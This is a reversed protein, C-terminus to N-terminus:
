HQWREIAKDGLRKSFELMAQHLLTNISMLQLNRNKLEKLGSGMLSLLKDDSKKIGKIVSNDQRFGKQIEKLLAETRSSFEQVEQQYREKEQRSTSIDEMMQRTSLQLRSNEKKIQGLMLTLGYMNVEVERLVSSQRNLMDSHSKHLEELEAKMEDRPALLKRTREAMDRISQELESKRRTLADKQERIEDIRLKEVRWKREVEKLTKMLEELEREKEEISRSIEQMEAIIQDVEQQRLSQTERNEKELLAMQHLMLDFDESDPYQELLAAREQLLAEYRERNSHIGSAMKEEYNQQRRKKTELIRDLRKIKEELQKIKFNVEKLDALLEKKRSEAIRRNIQEDELLEQIIKEMEMIDKNHKVISAIREELQLRSRELETSVWEHDARVEDEVGLQHKCLKSYYALSEKLLVQAALAKELGDEVGITEEQLSKLTLNFAEEQMETHKKQKEIQQNLEKNQLMEEQLQQECSFHSMKLSQLNDQVETTQRFLQKIKSEMENKNEKLEKLELGIKEVVERQQKVQGMRYAMKKDLDENEESFRERELAVSQQFSLKQQEVDVISNRLQETQELTEDLHQQRSYRLSVLVNLSVILEKHEASVRDREGQLLKHKELLEQLKNEKERLIQFSLSLERRLQEIEEVNVARAAAKDRLIEDRLRNTMNIIKYRLKCNEITEVELLERVTRRTAELEAVAETIATLHVCGEDSFPLEDERLERELDKLRELAAVVAPFEPVLCSAM